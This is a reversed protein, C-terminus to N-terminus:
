GREWGAKRYVDLTGNVLADLSFEREAITRGAAGMRTCLDPEALLREIRDTLPDLDGIPVIFGSVGDEVLYPIDGAPSAVVARGGAMAEMVANPCGEMNSPHVLITASKILAPIDETYGNLKVREGMGLDSILRELAPREPGEGAITVRLNTGKKVLLHAARIVLDWQKLGILGGIGVLHIDTFDPPAPDFLSLDLGNRVLYRFKPRFPPLARDAEDLATRSNFLQTRPFRASLMGIPQGVKRRGRFFGSRVSGIPIARTGRCGYWALFNTFFTYSHVVEPKASLLYRRWGALKETFSGKWKFPIIEVGLERIKANYPDDERHSWVAVAPHLKERDMTKLLYYLQREQGGSQFQGVLYVLRPTV